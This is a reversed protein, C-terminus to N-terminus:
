PSGRSWPPPDSMRPDEGAGANSIAMAAALYSGGSVASLYDARGLIGAEILRQCVGLSFSASRIGGGSLCIGIKINASAAEPDHADDRDREHDNKSETM